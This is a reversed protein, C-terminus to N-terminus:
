GGHKEGTESASEPVYYEWECGASSEHDGRCIRFGENTTEVNWRNNKHLAAELEGIKASKAMLSETLESIRAMAQQLEMNREYLVQSKSPKSVAEFSKACHLM